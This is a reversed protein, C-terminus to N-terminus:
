SAGPDRGAPYEAVFPCGLTKQLAEVLDDVSEARHYDGGNMEALCSAVAQANLYDEAGQSEWSFYDGRVKFGIVHITLDMADAALSAALQCPAGGCTEKGDTVLVIVGPKNTVDLVQAAEAVSQTLPTNGAPELGDVADIVPGAANAIPGFRVDINECMDKPGPGYVILGIRRTQAVQPMAKRVADRAEFIRPLDLQNFGTESMSGSGDFVVMADRSCLDQAALVPGLSLQAAIAVASATRLPAFGM